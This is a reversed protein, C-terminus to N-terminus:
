LLSFFRLEMYRIKEFPKLRHFFLLSLLRYKLAANFSSLNKLGSYWTSPVLNKKALKAHHLNTQSQAKAHSM